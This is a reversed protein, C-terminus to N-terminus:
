LEGRFARQLLANFFNSSEKASDLYNQKTSTFRETFNAFNLQLKLPPIPVDFNKMISTNLNPQTGSPATQRFYNTFSNLLKLLYIINVSEDIDSFSLWGDHICGGIKLIRAFGLSVGCNAFILSGPELYLSKSVGEKKFAEATQHIYIDDGETADGIKIWPVSGGLYETIPRPSGGRRIRCLDGLKKKDWGKPNTVPDGFMELFTSRLLEESLCIAEIRKRRIADARDLITAIRRQEELPPLPIKVQKLDKLIIRRIASGTKRQIAQQLTTPSQLMRGFYQSDLTDVKPRLIAISSLVAFNQDESVVHVKGVTGDKSFLVDGVKPVSNGADAKIYEDITIHSCNTFDLGENSMDKVTLFPIGEEVDPPTYHTGDTVLECAEEITVTKM